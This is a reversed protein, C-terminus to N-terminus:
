KYCVDEGFKWPKELQIKNPKLVEHSAATAHDGGAVRTSQTITRAMLPARPLLSRTVRSLM